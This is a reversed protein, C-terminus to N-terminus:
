HNAGAAAPGPVGPFHRQAEGSCRGRSIAAVFQPGDFVAANGEGLVRGEPVVAARARSSMTTHMEGVGWESVGGLAARM